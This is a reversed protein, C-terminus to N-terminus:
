VIGTNSVLKDLRNNLNISIALWYCHDFIIIHHDTKIESCVTAAFYRHRKGLFSERFLLHNRKVQM